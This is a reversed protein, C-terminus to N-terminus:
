NDMFQFSLDSGANRTRGQTSHFWISRDYLWGLVSSLFQYHLLLSTANLFCYVWLFPFGYTFLTSPTEQCIIKILSNETVDFVILLLFSCVYGWHCDNSWMKRQYLRKQRYLITFHIFENPHFRWFIPPESITCPIAGKASYSIFYWWYGTIMQENILVFHFYNWWNLDVVTLKQWASRNDIIQHNRWEAPQGSRSVIQHHNSVIWLRFHFFFNLYM